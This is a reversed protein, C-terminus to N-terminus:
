GIIGRKGLEYLGWGILFCILIVVGGTKLFDKLEAKWEAETQPLFKEKTM